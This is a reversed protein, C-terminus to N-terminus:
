FLKQTLITIEHRPRSLFLNIHNVKGDVKGFTSKPRECRDCSHKSSPDQQGNACRRLKGDYVDLLELSHKVFFLGKKPFINSTISNNFVQSIELFEDNTAFEFEQFYKIIEIKLNLQNGDKTIAHIRTCFSVKQGDGIM